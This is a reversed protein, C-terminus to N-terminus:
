SSCEVNLGIAQTPRRPDSELHRFAWPVVRTAIIVVRGCLSPIPWRNSSEHLHAAARDVCDGPERPTCKFWDNEDKGQLLQAMEVGQERGRRSWGFGHMPSANPLTSLPLLDSSGSAFPELIESDAPKTFFGWGQPMLQQVVPALPAQGPLSIVNPPLSAQAIYSAILIYGVGAVFLHVRRVRAIDDRMLCRLGLLSWLKLAHSM